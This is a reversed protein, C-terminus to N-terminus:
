RPEDYSSSSAATNAHAPRGIFAVAGTLGVLVIVLGTIWLWRNRAM